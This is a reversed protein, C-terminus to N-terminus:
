GLNRNFDIRSMFRDVFRSLKIKHLHAEYKGAYIKWALVFEFLLIDFPFMTDVIREDEDYFYFVCLFTNKTQKLTRTTLRFLKESYLFNFILGAHFDHLFFM